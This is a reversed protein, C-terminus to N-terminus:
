PVPTTIGPQHFSMTIRGQGNPVTAAEAAGGLGVLGFGSLTFYPSGQYPVSRGAGVIGDVTWGAKLLLATEVGFLVKASGPGIWSASLKRLPTGVAGSWQYEVATFGPPVKAQVPFDPPKTTGHGAPDTTTTTSPVTVPLVSKRPTQSGCAAAILITLGTAFVVGHRGASGLKGV